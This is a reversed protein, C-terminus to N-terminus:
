VLKKTNKKNKEKKPNKGNKQCTKSFVQIQKLQKRIDKAIRRGM